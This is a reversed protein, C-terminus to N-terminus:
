LLNESLLKLIFHQLTTAQSEDLPEKTIENNSIIRIGICSTNFKQCTQYTAVSEMDESLTSFKESLWNIRDTERNFVDGSGLTGVYVNNTTNSKFFNNFLSVLNSNTEFTKAHKSVEWEFPDSGKNKEKKPMSFANINQCSNGIIIDGTHINEKHSGAIGQNIVLNPAFNLIGITTAISSNIEGINTKSIIIQYNAFDGIYFDFDSITTKTTNKLAEVLTEVEIDMAGQILIKKKFINEM